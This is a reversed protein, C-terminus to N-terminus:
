IEEMDDELACIKVKTQRTLCFNSHLYEAINLRAVNIINVRMGPEKLM